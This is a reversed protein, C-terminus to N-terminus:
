DKDMQDLAPMAVETLWRKAASKADDNMGHAATAIGEKTVQVRSSEMADAVGITFAKSESKGGWGVWCCYQKGKAARFDRSISGGGEWLMFAKFYDMYCDWDMAIASGIIHAGNSSGAIIRHTKSLNPILTTLRELMAAHYAEILKMNGSDSGLAGDKAIESTYPFSVLVYRSPDAISKAAGLSDNGSGGNLFVLVPVPDPYKFNDPISISFGATKGTYTKALEPMEVRFSAGPKVRPDLDSPQPIGQSKFVWNKIYEQDEEIFTDMAFTYRKKGLVQLTVQTEDVSVITAKITKQDTARTFDRVAAQGKVEAGLIMFLALLSLSISWINSKM